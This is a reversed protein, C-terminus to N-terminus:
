QHGMIKITYEPEIIADESAYLLHLSPVLIFIIILSPFFAFIFELFGSHRFALNKYMDKHTNKSYLYYNNINNCYTLLLKRELFFFHIVNIFHM